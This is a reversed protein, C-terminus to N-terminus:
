NRSLQRANADAMEDILGRLDDYMQAWLSDQLVLMARSYELITADDEASLPPFRGLMRDELTMRLTSPHAAGDDIKASHAM